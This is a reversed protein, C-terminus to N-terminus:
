FPGESQLPSASSSSIGLWPLVRLQFQPVWDWIHLSWLCKSTPGLAKLCFLQGKYGWFIRYVRLNFIVVSSWSACFYIRSLHICFSWLQTSEWSEFFASFNFQKPLGLNRGEQQKDVTHSIQEVSRSKQLIPSILPSNPTLWLAWYLFLACGSAMRSELHLDSYSERM